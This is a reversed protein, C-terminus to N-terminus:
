HNSHLHLDPNAPAPLATIPVQQQLAEQVEKVTILRMCPKDYPCKTKQLWDICNACPLDKSLNINNDHGWVRKSSPGFFIVGRTGFANTVHSLFSVVGVFGAAQKVLAMSQRINTKGRLDVAGEVMAETPLGVQIFTYDPMRMVLENWYELPWMQNTTAVSTIHIIIPNRFKSLTTRACTEEKDTLWIQLKPDQLTLGVMEAIIAAAKISYTYSPHLTAYKVQHVKILRIRQLFQYYWKNKWTLQRFCGIHPNHQLVRAHGINAYLVTIGVGPFQRQWEKFVPTLLAVDGLGGFTEIYIRRSM